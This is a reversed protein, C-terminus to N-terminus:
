QGPRDREAKGIEVLKPAPHTPGLCLRIGVQHERAVQHAGGAFANRRNLLVGLQAGSELDGHAIELNTASAVQRPVACLPWMM